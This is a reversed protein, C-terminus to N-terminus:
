RKWPDKGAIPTSAKQGLKRLAPNKFPMWAGCGTVAPPERGGLIGAPLYGLYMERGGCSGVSSKECNISSYYLFSYKWFLKSSIYIVGPLAAQMDTIDLAISIVDFPSLSKYGM